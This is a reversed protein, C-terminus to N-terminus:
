NKKLVISEEEKKVVMAYFERLNVYDEPGFTAKNLKLRCRLQVMGGQEGILYDFTGDHSNLTARVSKPLEEVAYGDPVSMNFVYLDDPANPMEIPYKREAAVFPNERLGAGIFPNLYIKKEDGSQHIKFSYHVKVPDDPQDLSDIGADSITIDEGYQTQINRFFKKKEEENVNKRLEYSEQPGLTSEWTGGADKDFAGINVVTAKREDLSDAELDVSGSDTKSIIRAPGNYCEEDLQGFGLKSHAADLYWAKGDIVVRVIIYNLRRLVPFTSLNIGEDRTTMVVPDAVLGIKRLLAVLLLNIDGVSGGHKRVVDGLHGTIYMNRYDDCTFNRTLYYYIEHAQQGFDGGTVAKKVCDTLSENDDDLASAFHRRDLLQATVEKWSNYHDDFQYGDYTKTLQFDIKDVYNGPCYLFGEVRFAPIDKMIWHHKTVTASIIQWEGHADRMQYSEAGVEGKDLTYPHVGQKIVTYFFTQPIEVMLESWLCPYRESQFEWVPLYQYYPSTITYTYDIISGEKVGPLTFKMETFDGTVRDEFIDSKDLKIESVQGNELNYTSASVKGMKNQEAEDAPHYLVIHVTVLDDFARKNLIKVRRHRQFEYSFRSHENGVFRVQGIDALIVAGSSDIVSSTNPAFDASSVPSLERVHKDQALCHWGWVCPLFFMTMTLRVLPRLTM